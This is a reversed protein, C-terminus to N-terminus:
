ILVAKVHFDCNWIACVVIVIAVAHILISIFILMTVRENIMVVSINSKNLLVLILDKLVMMHFVMMIVLFVDKTLIILFLILSNNLMRVMHILILLVMMIKTNLMWVWFRRCPKSNMRLRWSDYIWPQRLFVSYEHFIIMSMGEVKGIILRSCSLCVHCSVDIMM